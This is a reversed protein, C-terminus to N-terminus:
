PTRLVTGASLRTDRDPLIDRNAMWLAGAAEPSGYVRLAVDAVTEGADAQIFALRRGTTAAPRRPKATKARPSPQSRALPEPPRALSRAVAPGPAAPRRSVPLTRVVPPAPPTESVHVDATPVPRPETPTTDPPSTAPEPASREAVPASAPAPAPGEPQYLVVAFFVVIAVSLFVSVGLHRTM